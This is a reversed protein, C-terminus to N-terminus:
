RPRRRVIERAAFWAAALGGSILCLAGIVAFVYLAANM